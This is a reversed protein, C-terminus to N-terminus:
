QHFTEWFWCTTAILGFGVEELLPVAAELEVDVQEIQVLWELTTFANLCLQELAEKNCMKGSQQYDYREFLGEIVDRVEVPVMLLHDKTSELSCSRARTDKPSEGGAMTRVGSAASSSYVRWRARRLLGKKTRLNNEGM